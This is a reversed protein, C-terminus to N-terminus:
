PPAISIRIPTRLLRRDYPGNDVNMRVFYVYPRSAITDFNWSDSAPDLLSPDRDSARPDGLRNPGTPDAWLLVPKSWHIFDYTAAAVIGYVANAQGANIAGTTVAVFAGSVPERALGGMNGFEAKLPTCVHEKADQVKELYPNVFRVSFDFGNWARWSSPDGLDRTRMLCIGNAQDRYQTARILVYYYGDLAVINSPQFYGIPFGIDGVYEYPLAAVLHAPPTREEYTEGGDKSTILTISNAWCRGYNRSPCLDPRTHGNFENHVLGYIVKGDLTFPAALWQHDAYREPPNELDSKRLIRCDYRVSDLSSGLFQRLTDHSAFLHVSGRSDRFARPPADVTEKASCRDRNWDYITEPQGTVDVSLTPVEAAL